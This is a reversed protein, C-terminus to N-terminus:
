PHQGDYIEFRARGHEKAGYMAADANRLLTEPTEMEGGSLAIGVSITM